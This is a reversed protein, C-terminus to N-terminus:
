NSWRLVTSGLVFIPESKRLSSIVKHWSNRWLSAAYAQTESSPSSPRTCNRSTLMIVNEIIKDL